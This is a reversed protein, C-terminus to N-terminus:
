PQPEAEEAGDAGADEQLAKELAADLEAKARDSRVTINADTSVKDGYRERDHSKLMFQTHGHDWLTEILPKTTDNPDMVVRGNNVIVRKVGNTAHDFAVTEVKDLMMLRASELMKKFEQDQDKWVYIHLHNIGLTEAIELFSFNKAKLYAVQLKIERQKDPSDALVRLFPNKTEDLSAELDEKEIAM